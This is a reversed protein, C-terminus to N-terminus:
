NKRLSYPSNKLHYVEYFTIIGKEIDFVLGYKGITLQTYHKRSNNRPDKVPNMNNGLGDIGFKCIQRIKKIIKKRVTNGLSAFQKKFAPTYVAEKGTLAYLLPFEIGNGNKLKKKQSKVASSLTQTKNMEALQDLLKNTLEDKDLASLEEKLSLIQGQLSVREKLLSSIQSDTKKITLVAKGLETELRTIEKKSAELAKTKEALDKKLARNEVDINKLLSLHDLCECLEAGREKALNRLSEIIRIIGDLFGDFESSFVGKIKQIKEEINSFDDEHEASTEQIEPLIETALPKTETKADTPRRKLWRREIDERSFIKDEVLCKVGLNVYKIYVSGAKYLKMFEKEKEEPSKKDILFAYATRIIECYKRATEKKFPYGALRQNLERSESVYNEDCISFIIDLAEMPDYKMKCLERRREIEEVFSRSCKLFNKPM